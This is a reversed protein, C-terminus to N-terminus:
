LGLLSAGHYLLPEFFQLLEPSLAQASNLRRQQHGCEDLLGVLPEAENQHSRSRPPGRVDCTSVDSNTLACM